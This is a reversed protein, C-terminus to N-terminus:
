QSKGDGERQPETVVPGQCVRKQFNGRTLQGKDVRTNEVCEM